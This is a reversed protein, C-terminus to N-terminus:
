GNDIDRQLDQVAQLIAKVDQKTEKVDDEIQEVKTEVKILRDHDEQVVKQQEELTEVDSALAGMYMGGSLAATVLGIATAVSVFSADKRM